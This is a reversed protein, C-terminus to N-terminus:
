KGQKKRKKNTKESEITIQFELYVKGAEKQNRVQLNCKYQKCIQKVNALGFGRNEGKSSKGQEFMKIQEEQTIYDSENKIRFVIEEKTEMFELYIVKERKGDAIAEIANDFLNGIMEVMKYIPVRGQLDGIRIDYAVTINHKEAQLFKEYLFGIIVPNGIKLMKHYRNEIQIAEVYAQQEKVLEEYTTCTYHMSYITNLHNQFDHQRKRIETILNQFGENYMQHMQLQLEWERAKFYSKQWMYTVGILLLLSAVIAFYQEPLLYNIDGVRFLLYAMCFFAVLLIMRLLIKKQQMFNSFKDLKLRPFIFWVILLLFANFSIYSKGYAWEEGWFMCALYLMWWVALQLFGIVIFCLIINLIAKRKEFGFEIM